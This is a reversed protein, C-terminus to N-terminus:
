QKKWLEEQIYYPGNSVSATESDMAFGVVTQDRRVRIRAELSGDQKPVVRMGAFIEKSCNKPRTIKTKIIM